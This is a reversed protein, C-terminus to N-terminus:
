IFNQNLNKSEEDGDNVTMNKIPYKYYKPINIHVCAFLVKKQM